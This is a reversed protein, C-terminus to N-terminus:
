ATVTTFEDPQLPIETGTLAVVNCPLGVIIVGAPGVVMQAESETKNDAPFPVAQNHDFPEAECDM